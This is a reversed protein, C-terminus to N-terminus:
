CCKCSCSCRAADCRGSLKEYLLYSLAQGLGALADDVSEASVLADALSAIVALRESVVMERLLGRFRELTPGCSRSSTSTCPFVCFAHIVQIIATSLANLAALMMPHLPAPVACSCPFLFM